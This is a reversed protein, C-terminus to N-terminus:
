GSSEAVVLQYFASMKMTRKNPCCDGVEYPAEQLPDSDRTREDLLNLHLIIKLQISVCM